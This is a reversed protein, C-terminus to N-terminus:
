FLEINDGLGDDASAVAEGAPAPNFLSSHINRESQMTYREALAALGAGQLADPALRRAEGVIVALEQIAQQLVRSVHHHVTIGATAEEVEGSLQAVEEDMRALSSRVTGNVGRLVEVLESLTSVMKEIEQEKEDLHSNGGENLRETVEIISQLIESVAGTHEIADVSLRQIAEALVGLAAGEEGTYASKIQANLAILKIEEGITEIDGVFGTIEGVTEAVSGMAAGLTRNMRSSDVLAESVVGIDRNMETFFSGGTENAIGAMGSTRSMLTGGKHAIDRLGSIINGVASELSLTAHQLQAMQLECISAVDGAGALRSSVGQKLERLAQDVHEIQQRVIDHAQMSIVVEGISRSVEDSMASVEAISSSCRANIVVLADLSGRTRNVIGIVSGHQKAGADLVESLTRQIAAALEEKRRQVIAAKENVQVSLEGVDSALTDFGAASQGLRASEIKTSIGLMRLVKNVKKFGSLPAAVQDLLVLIERLTRTSLEIDNSARDVYDEMEHLMRALQKMADTIMSGAVEGVVEAAIASIGTGRQYFEQLKGGIALFEDETSRAVEGLETAVQELLTPWGASVRGFEDDSSTGTVTDMGASKM